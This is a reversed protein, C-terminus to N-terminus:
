TKKPHCGTCAIPGKKEAKHCGVCRVHFPNKTLAMDRMSTAKDKPDLHCASCKKVETKADKTLGKQDHHCTDCTKVLTTAHKAHDFTVPTQKKAAEGVTVKEPVKVALAITAILCFAVSLLISLVRRM